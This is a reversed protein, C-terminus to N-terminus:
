TVRISLEIEREEISENWLKMDLESCEIVLVGRIVIEADVWPAACYAPLQPIAIAEEVREVYGVVMVIGKRERAWEEVCLSVDVLVARDEDALLMIGTLGDYSLM